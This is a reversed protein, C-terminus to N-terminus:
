TVRRSPDIESGRNAGNGTEKKSCCRSRFSIMVLM